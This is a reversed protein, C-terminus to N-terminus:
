RILVSMLTISQTARGSLMLRRWTELKKDEFWLWTLFVVAEILVVFFTTIALWVGFSIIMPSDSPSSTENQSITSGESQHSRLSQMELNVDDQSQDLSDYDSRCLHDRFSSQRSM